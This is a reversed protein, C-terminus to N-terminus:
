YFNRHVLIFYEKELYTYWKNTYKPNDLFIEPARYGLTGIETSTYLDKVIKSLGFDCIKVGLKNESL